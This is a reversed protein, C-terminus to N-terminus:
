GIDSDCSNSVQGQTRISTGKSHWDFRPTTGVHWGFSVSDCRPDAGHDLVVILVRKSLSIFSEAPETSTSALAALRLDSLAFFCNM